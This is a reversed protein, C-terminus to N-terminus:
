IPPYSWVSESDHTSPGQSALIKNAHSCTRDSATMHGAKLRPVNPRQGQHSGYVSVRDDGRPRLAGHCLFPRERDTPDVSM